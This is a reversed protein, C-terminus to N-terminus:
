AIHFVNELVYILGVAVPFTVIVAVAWWMKFTDQMMGPIGVVLTVLLITSVESTYNWDLERFYILGYFIALCFTANMTAAGYLTSACVSFGNNTKEAASTFSQLVETANSAIPTVCFSIYFPNIGVNSGFDNIVDVMPDSFLTVLFTGWALLKIAYAKQEAETWNTFDEDETGHPVPVVDNDMEAQRLVIDSGTESKDLSDEGPHFVSMASRARTGTGSPLLAAREGSSSDNQYSNESLKSDGDDGNAMSRSVLGELIDRFEEKSIKHDNDTDKSHFAFSLSQDTINLRLLTRAHQCETFTMKNAEKLALEAWLESFGWTPNAKTEREVKELLKHSANAWRPLDTRRWLALIVQMDDISSRRRQPLLEQSATVRQYFDEVRESKVIRMRRIGTTATWNMNESYASYNYANDTNKNADNIWIHVQHRTSKDLDLELEDSDKDLVFSDLREQIHEPPPGPNALKVYEEKQQKRMFNEVFTEFESSLPYHTTPLLYHNTSDFIRIFLHLCVRLVCECVCESV